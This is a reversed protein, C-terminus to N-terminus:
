ENSLILAVEGEIELSKIQHPVIFSDGKQVIQKNILAAGEIVTVLLYKVKIEYILSGLVELKQM